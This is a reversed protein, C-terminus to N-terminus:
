SWSGGIKSPTFEIAESRAMDDSKCGMGNHKEVLLGPSAILNKIKTLKLLPNM